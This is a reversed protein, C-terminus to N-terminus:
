VEEYIVVCLVRADGTATDDTADDADRELKIRFIDGSAISDKNTLTITLLGLYGATGPVTQNGANATDFSSASDQDLADLATIAEVSVEFDFKGSTASAAMYYIDAKLTGSGTYGDPIKVAKSYMAEVTSADFAMYIRNQVVGKDAHASSPPIFADADFMIEFNRAM